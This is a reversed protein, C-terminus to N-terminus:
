KSTAPSDRVYVYRLVGDDACRASRRYIGGGGAVEPRPEEMQDTEGDRPGGVFIVTTATLPPGEAAIGVIEFPTKM